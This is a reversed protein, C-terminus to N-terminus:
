FKGELGLLQGLWGPGLLQNCSLFFVILAGLIYTFGNIGLLQLIVVSTPPAGDEIEQMEEDTFTVEESYYTEQEEDESRIAMLVALPYDSQVCCYVNPADYGRRHRSTPSWVKNRLATRRQFYTKKEKQHRYGHHIEERIHPVFAIKLKSRTRYCPLSCQAYTNLDSKDGLSLFHWDLKNQVMASVAFCIHLQLVFALAQRKM